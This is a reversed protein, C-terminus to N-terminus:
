NEIMIKNNSLDIKTNGLKNITSMGLLFGSEDIGPMVAIEINYITKPGITMSPIQWVEALVTDGNAIVYYGSRKFHTRRNIFGSRIHQNLYSKSITTTSAGTDLLFTTSIGDITTYIYKQSRLPTLEIFIEKKVDKVISELRPPSFLNLVVIMLFLGIFVSLVIVKIKNRQYYNQLKDTTTPKSVPEKKQKILAMALREVDSIVKIDLKQKSLKSIIGTADSVKEIKFILVLAENYNKETHKLVEILSILELKTSMSAKKYVGVIALTSLEKALGLRHRKLDLNSINKM